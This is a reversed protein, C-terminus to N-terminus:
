PATRSSKSAQGTIMGRVLDAPSDPTIRGQNVGALYSAPRGLAVFPLGTLMTMSTLVDKTLKADSATTNGEVKKVIEPLTGLVQQVMSLMPSVRIDSSVDRGKLGDILFSAAPGVLPVMATIYELQAVVTYDMLTGWPDTDWGQQLNGALTQRILNSAMAPIAVALGYVAALRGYARERAALTAETGILNAQGLWYESFQRFPKIMTPGTSWGSLDEPNHSGQTSRVVHDAFAAPDEHGDQVGKDYAAGWVIPDMINQLGGRLFHAHATTWWVGKQYLNPDLVLTNAADTLENMQHQARNAMMKSASTVRESYARPNAMYRGMHAMINLPGTRVAATPISTVHQLANALNGFMIAMGTRQSFGNFLGDVWRGGPGGGTPTSTKQGVSRKLWPLLLSQWASPDYAHLVPAFGQRGGGGRDMLLRQASRVAPGMHAFRLVEDMQSIAQRIDLDLPKNYEVRAKTFGNTATPFAYTGATGNLVTAEDVRM